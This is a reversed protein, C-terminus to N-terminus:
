NCNQKVGFVNADHHVEAGLDLEKSKNRSKSLSAVLQCARLDRSCIFWDAERFQELPRKTQGNM